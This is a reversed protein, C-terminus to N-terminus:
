HVRVPDPFTRYLGSKFNKVRRFVEVHLSEVEGSRAAASHFARDLSDLDKTHIRIHFEGLVEPGFGFKRRELSYSEVMQNDIFFQMFQSVATAFQLDERSDVLDVWIAYVNMFVM